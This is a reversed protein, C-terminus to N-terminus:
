CTLQPAYKWPPSHDHTAYKPPIQLKLCQPIDHNISSSWRKDYICCATNSPVPM